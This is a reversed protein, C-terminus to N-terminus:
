QACTFLARKLLEAHEKGSFESWSFLAHICSFILAQCERLAKRREAPVGSYVAVDEPDPSSQTARPISRAYKGIEESHGLLHPLLEVVKRAVDVTTLANLRGFSAETAAGGDKGPFTKVKGKLRHRLKACFDSLIFALDQPRLKPNGNDDLDDVVSVSHYTILNFVNLNFERLFPAYAQFNVKAAERRDAEKDDLNLQTPHLSEDNLKRKKGRGKAQQGKKGVKGNPPQWGALNVTHAVQPPIFSPQCALCDKLTEAVELLDRLRWLLSHKTDKDEQDSFVNLLERFWNLCYFLSICVANKEADSLVELKSYNCEDPMVLPCTLLGLIEEVSDRSEMSVKVLRLQSLLLPMKASPAGAAPAAMPLINVAVGEEDGEDTNAGEERSYALQHPIVSQVNEPTRNGEVDVCFDDEFAKPVRYSM